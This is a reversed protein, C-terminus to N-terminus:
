NKNVCMLFDGERIGRKKIPCLSFLTEGLDGNAMCPACIGKEPHNWLSEPKDLSIVPINGGKLFDSTCQEWILAIGQAGVLVASQSELFALAHEMTVMRANDRLRFLKVEYSLGPVLVFSTDLFNSDTINADFVVFEDGHKERFSDLQHLFQYKEPVTLTFSRVLSFVEICLVDRLFRNVVEGNNALFSCMHEEFEHERPFQVVVSGLLNRYPGIIREEPATKGNEFM